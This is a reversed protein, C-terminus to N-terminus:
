GVYKNIVITKTFIDHVFEKKLILRIISYITIAAFKGWFRITAKNFSIRDGQLDTVMIRFIRKGLSAQNRSSETIAFYFWSIVLFTSLIIIGSTVNTSLVPIKAFICFLAISLSVLVYLFIFDIIVAGTRKMFSACDSGRM